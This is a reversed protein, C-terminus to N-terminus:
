LFTEKQELKQKDKLQGTFKYVNHKVKVVSTGHKPVCVPGIIVDAMHWLCLQTQEAGQTTTTYQSSVNSKTHQIDIIVKYANQM